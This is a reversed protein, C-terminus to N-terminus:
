NFELYLDAKEKTFDVDSRGIRIVLYSNTNSPPYVASTSLAIKEENVIKYITATKGILSELTSNNDFILLLHHQGGRKFFFINLKTPM